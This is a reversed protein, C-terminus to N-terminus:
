SKLNVEICAITGNEGFVKDWLAIYNRNKGGMYAKVFPFYNQSLFDMFRNLDEIGGEEALKELREYENQYQEYSQVPILKSFMMSHTFEQLFRIDHNTGLNAEIQALAGDKRFVSDWYEVYNIRERKSYEGLFPFYKQQLFRTFRQVGEPNGTMAVKRLKDYVSQVEEYSSDPAMDSFMMSDRALSVEQLEKLDVYHSLIQDIQRKLKLSLDEVSNFSLSIQEYSEILKKLQNIKTLDEDIEDIPIHGQKFYVFLYSPKKGMRLNQYALDFEEKSFQGVKKFFLAIVIDCKLMEENFYNQIRQGRFSHLLEEWIVLDLFIGRDVLSRNERYLFLAIEKREESLESSSVIFINIRRM